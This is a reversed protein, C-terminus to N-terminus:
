RRLQLARQQPCRRLLRQLRGPLEAEAPYKNVTEIITDKTDVVFHKMAEELGHIKALIWDTNLEHFDTYPYNNRPGFPWM